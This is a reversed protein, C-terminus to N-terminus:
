DPKPLVDFALCIRAEDSAFPITQHFVYSPFLVMLGEEPQVATVVPAQTCGLGDPPRGLELWGERGAGAGVVSPVAAYYVGSLWGDRHIHAQQYGGDRLVVGWIQISWAKPKWWLYPHDGQAPLAEFYARVEADIIRILETVPGPDADLLDGSQYGGRTTNGSREYVLTPHRQVHDCLAANLAANGAGPASQRLLYEFGLLAQAAEREGAETLAIAFYALSERFFPNIALSRQLTQCAQRVQGDMLLATGLFCLPRADRPATDAARGLLQMADDLRGADRFLLGLNILAESLAPDLRLAEGFSQEAAPLDGERRQALGLQHWCVADDPSAALATRYAVIAEAYRALKQLLDGRLREWQAVGSRQSLARECYLLADANQGARALEAAVEICAAAREREITVFRTFAELAERPQAAALLAKGLCLSAQANNPELAIACRCAAAASVADGAELFDVAAALSRAASTETM